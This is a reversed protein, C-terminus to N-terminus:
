SRKSKVISKFPKDVDKPPKEQGMKEVIYKNVAENFSNIAKIERKLEDIQEQLSELTPKSM